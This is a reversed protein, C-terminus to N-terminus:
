VATNVSTCKPKECLYSACTPHIDTESKVIDQASGCHKIGVSVSFPQERFTEPFVFCHSSSSTVEVSGNQIGTYLDVLSWSEEVVM